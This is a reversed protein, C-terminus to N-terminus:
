QRAMGVKEQVQLAERHLDSAQRRVNDMCLSCLPLYLETYCFVTPLRIPLGANFEFIYGAVFLLISAELETADAKLLESTPNWQFTSSPNVLVWPPTPVAVHGADRLLPTLLM